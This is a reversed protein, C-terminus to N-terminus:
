KRHVFGEMSENSTKGLDSAHLIGISPPNNDNDSGYESGELGGQNMRSTM